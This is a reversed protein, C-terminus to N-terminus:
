AHRLVIGLHHEAHWRMDGVDVRAWCWTGVRASNLLRLLGLLDPDAEPFLEVVDDELFALDWEVPGCSVAELDIWRPGRPTFLLNRDHPEGHLVREPFTRCDLEALWGDFAAALRGRDAEPLAAMQADDELTGRGLDLAERFSPLSPGYRELAAHLARLAAAVEGPTAEHETDHELHEWLTVLYGTDADDIPAGLPLRAVASDRLAEAVAHELLLPTRSHAWRGVKAVVDAPRLWLVANNAESLVVTSRVTLERQAAARSAAEAPGM